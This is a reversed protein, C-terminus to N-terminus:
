EVKLLYTEVKLGANVLINGDGQHQQAPKTYTDQGADAIKVNEIGTYPKMNEISALIAGLQHFSCELEMSTSFVNYNGMDSKKASRISVLRAGSNEVLASLKNKVNDIDERYVVIDEYRTKIADLGALEKRLENQALQQATKKDYNKIKRVANQYIIKYCVFFTILFVVAIILMKKQKEELTDFIKILPIKLQM